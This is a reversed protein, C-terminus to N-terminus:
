TNQLRKELEGLAKKMKEHLVNMEVWHGFDDSMRGHWHNPDQKFRHHVEKTYTSHAESKWEGSFGPFINSRLPYGIRDYWNTHDITTKQLPIPSDESDSSKSPQEKQSLFKNVEDDTLLEDVVHSGFKHKINKPIVCGEERSPLQEPTECSPSPVGDSTVRPTSPVPSIPSDIQMVTIRGDRSPTAIKSSTKLKCKCDRATGTKADRNTGIAKKTSEPKPSMVRLSDLCDRQGPQPINVPENRCYNGRCQELQPVPQHSPQAGGSTDLVQGEETLGKYFGKSDLTTGFLTRGPYKRSSESTPNKTKTLEDAFRAMEPVQFQACEPDM